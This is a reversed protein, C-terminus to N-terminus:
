ASSLLVSAGIASILLISCPMIARGTRGRVTLTEDCATFAGTGINAGDLPARVRRGRRHNARTDCHVTGMAWVNAVTHSLAVM